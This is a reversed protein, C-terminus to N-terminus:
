FVYLGFARNEHSQLRKLAEVAKEAGTPQGARERAHQWRGLDDVVERTIGDTSLLVWDGSRVRYEAIEPEMDGSMGLAAFPVDPYKLNLGARPEMLRRYTKPVVLESVEGERIMYASCAGASAIALLSDDLYAAILSCGGKEHVNKKGNSHFVKRNSHIVANFLVNGVLSYSKRLVFPLTAELDGAERELFEKVSECGLKAAQLGAVAGGFGDAVAVIGRHPLALVYDENVPRPGGDAHTFISKIEM